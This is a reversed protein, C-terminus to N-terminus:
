EAVEGVGEVERRLRDLEAVAADVRRRFVTEPRLWAELRETASPSRETAFLLAASRDDTWEGSRLLRVAESESVGRARALTAVLVPVLGPGGDPDPLSGSGRYVDHANVVADFERGGVRVSRDIGTRDDVAVPPSPTAPTALRGVLAALLVVAAAGLIGSEVLPGLDATGVADAVAPPLREPAFLVVAGVALTAVGLAASTRRM